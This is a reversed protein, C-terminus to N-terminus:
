RSKVAKFSAAFLAALLGIELAIPILLKFLISFYDGYPFNDENLFDIFASKEELALAVVTIAPLVLSYVAIAKFMIKGSNRYKFIIFIVALSFFALLMLLDSEIKQTGTIEVGFFNAGSILGGFFAFAATILLAITSLTRLVIIL